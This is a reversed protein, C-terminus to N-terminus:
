RSSPPELHRSFHPKMKRRRDIEVVSKNQRLGLSIEALRRISREDLKRAANKNEPVTSDGKLQVKGHVKKNVLKVNYRNFDNDFDQEYKPRYYGQQMQIEERLSAKFPQSGGKSKDIVSIHDRETSGGGEEKSKKRKTEGAQQRADRQDRQYKEVQAM